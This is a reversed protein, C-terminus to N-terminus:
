SAVGTVKALWERVDDLTGLQCTIARLTVVYALHGRDDTTEILVVGALACRATLTALQKAHTSQAADAHRWVDEQQTEQSRSREENPTAYPKENSLTQDVVHNSQIHQM